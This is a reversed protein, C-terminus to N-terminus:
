SLWLRRYEGEPDLLKAQKQPNVPKFEKTDLGYGAINSWNGWNNCVDYDILVEEFYSAGLRWDLNLETAFYSAVNLRLQYSLFGTKKLEKMGADVLDMGTNGNIWDKLRNHQEATLFFQPSVGIIEHIKDKYKKMIFRYYDRMILEELLLNSSSSKGHQKQYDTVEKYIYKPSLCGQALWGSFKTSNDPGIFNYKNKEFENILKKEWIFENLRKLAEDEGGHFPFSTRNDPHVPKIDLRQMVEEMSYSDIKQISIENPVEYPPRVNSETEVAKKFDAYHDPIDKITFPLDDAKFLTSTSYEKLAIGRKWLQKELKQQIHKEDYSVEKKAYVDRIGYRFAVQPIVEEPNGLLYFLHGGIEKLSKELNRLSEIIFNARFNGTKKFGFANEEFHRPDFCYVPIIKEHNKVAKYLTENDHLRLDTKFWVLAIKGPM